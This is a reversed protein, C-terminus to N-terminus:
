LKFAFGILKINESIIFEVKVHEKVYILLILKGSHGGLPNIWHNIGDFIDCFLTRRVELKVVCPYLIIDVTCNISIM